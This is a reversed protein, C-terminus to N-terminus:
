GESGWTPLHFQGQEEAQPNQRRGSVEISQAHRCLRSFSPLFYGNKGRGDRSQGSYIKNFHSFGTRSCLCNHLQFGAALLLQFLFLRCMLSSCILPSTNEKHKLLRSHHRSFEKLHIHLQRRDAILIHTSLPMAPFPVTSYQKSSQRRNPTRTGSCPMHHKVKLPGSGGHVGRGSDNSSEGKIIITLFPFLNLFSKVSRKQIQVVISAPVGALDTDWTHLLNQVSVLLPFEHGQSRLYPILPAKTFLSPDKRHNLVVRSVQFPNINSECYYYLCM